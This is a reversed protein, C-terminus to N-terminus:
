SIRNIASLTSEALTKLGDTREGEDRLRALTEKIKQRREKRDQNVLPGGGQQERFIRVLFDSMEKPHYGSTKWFLLENIFNTHAKERITKIQPSLSESKLIMKNEDMSYGLEVLLDRDCLFSLPILRTGLFDEGHGPMVRILSFGRKLAEKAQIDQIRPDRRIRKQGSLIGRLQRSALRMKLSLARFSKSFLPGHM